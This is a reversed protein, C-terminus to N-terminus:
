FLNTPCFTFIHIYVRWNGNYNRCPQSEGAPGLVLLHNCMVPQWGEKCNYGHGSTKGLNSDRLWDSGRTDQERGKGGGGREGAARIGFSIVSLSCLYIFDDKVPLYRYEATCQSNYQATRAKVNIILSKVKDLM